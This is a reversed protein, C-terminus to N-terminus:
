CGSRVEPALFHFTGARSQVLSNNTVSRSAGFDILKIVPAVGALSLKQGVATGAPPM